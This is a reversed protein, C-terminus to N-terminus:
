TESGIVVTATPRARPLMRGIMNLLRVPPPSMIQIDARYRLALRSVALAARPSSPVGAQNFAGAAALRAAETLFEQMEGAPSVRVRLVAVAGGDNAFSHPVGPEVVVEDGPRPRRPQGDIVFTVEGTVLKWRETLRPHAHLPVDGGPDTEVEAMLDDGDRWFRYRQRRVPDVMIDSMPLM